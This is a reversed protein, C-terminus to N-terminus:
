IWYFPELCTKKLDNYIVRPLFTYEALVLEIEWKKLRVYTFQSHFYEIPYQNFLRKDAVSNINNAIVDLCQQYLSNM